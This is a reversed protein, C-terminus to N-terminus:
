RWAPEIRSESSRTQYKIKARRIEFNPRLSIKQAADLAGSALFIPQTQLFRELPKLAKKATLVILKSLYQNKHIPLRTAPTTKM